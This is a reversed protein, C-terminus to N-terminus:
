PYLTPNEEPDFPDSSPADQFAHKRAAELPPCLGPVQPYYPLGYGLPMPAFPYHFAPPGYPPQDSVKHKTAASGQNGQCQVQFEDEIKLHLPKM